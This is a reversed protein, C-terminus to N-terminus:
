KPSSNIRHMRQSARSLAEQRRLISGVLSMFNSRPSVREALNAQNALDSRVINPYSREVVHPAGLDIDEPKIM